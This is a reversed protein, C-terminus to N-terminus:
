AYIAKQSVTRAVTLLRAKIAIELQERTLQQEPMIPAETAFTIPQKVLKIRGQQDKQLAPIKLYARPFDFDFGCILIPTDSRYSRHILDFTTPSISETRKGNKYKKMQSGSPALLVLQQADTPKERQHKAMAMSSRLNARQVAPGHLERLSQTSKTDPFVQIINTLPSIHDKAVNTRRRSFPHIYDAYGLLRSLYMYNDMPSRNQGLTESLHTLYCVGLIDPMTTHPSLLMLNKYNTLEYRTVVEDLHDTVAALNSTRQEFKKLMKSTKSPDAEIMYQDLLTVDDPPRDIVSHPKLLLRGLRNPLILSAREIFLDDAAQQLMDKSNLDTTKTPIELTEPPM